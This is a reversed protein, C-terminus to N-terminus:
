SCPRGQGRRGITIARIVAGTMVKEAVCARGFITYTSRAAPAPATGIFFQGSATHGPGTWHGVTAADPGLASIEPPWFRRDGSYDNANPSGGIMHVDAVVRHFTLGDYYGAQALRVFRAATLPADAMRLSMEIFSGDDLSIHVSAAAAAKRLNQLEDVTPQELPRRTPEPSPRTGTLVAQADAAADAVLPDTDKLYARLFSLFDESPSGTESLRALLEIRADRSPEYDRATLRVLAAKSRAFIVDGLEATALTDLRSKKLIEAATLVLQVDDAALAEVAAAVRAASGMAALASLAAIRVNQEDDRILELALPESRTLQAVRAVAARVHWTGHHALETAIRVAEEPQFEVLTLLAQVPEHWRPGIFANGLEAALARLRGLADERENCRPDLAELAAIVVHRSEDSLANILPSCFGTSPIGAAVARLAELRVLYHLDDLRRYIDASFRDFAGAMMSVATRRIEWGCRPLGPPPCRYAAATSITREDTDGMARLAELAALYPDGDVRPVALQRLRRRMAHPVPHGQHRRYWAEIGRVAAPDPFSAELEGLFIREVESFQRDDLPLEGLSELIVSEVAAGREFPLRRRLTDVATAIETAHEAPKAHRLVLVLAHVVERRVQPDPDGIHRAIREVDAPAEFRGVARVAAARVAANPHVEATALLRADYSVATSEPPAPYLRDVMLREAALYVTDPTIVVGPQRRGAAEAGVLTLLLVSAGSLFWRSSM